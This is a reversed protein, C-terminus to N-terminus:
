GDFSYQRQLMAGSVLMMDRGRGIQAGVLMQANGVPENEIDEIIGRAHDEDEWIGEEVFMVGSECFSVQLWKTVENIDVEGELEYESVLEEAAEEVAEFARDVLGSSLREELATRAEGLSEYRPRNM